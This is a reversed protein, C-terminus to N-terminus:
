RLTERSGVGSVKRVRANRIGKIALFVAVNVVDLVWSLTVHGLGEALFSFGVFAVVLFWQVIELAGRCTASTSDIPVDALLMMEPDQRHVEALVSEVSPNVMVTTGVTVTPVTENGDAVLRVAAAADQDQWINIENTQVRAIRM